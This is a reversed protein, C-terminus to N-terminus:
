ERHLWFGGVASGDAVGAALGSVAGLDLAVKDGEVRLCDLAQFSRVEAVPFQRDPDPPRRCAQRPRRRAAKEHRV